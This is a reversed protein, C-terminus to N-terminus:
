LIQRLMALGVVRDVNVVGGAGGELVIRLASSDRAGSVAQSAARAVVPASIEALHVLQAATGPDPEDHRMWEVLAPYALVREKELVEGLQAVADIGRAGDARLKSEVVQAVRM